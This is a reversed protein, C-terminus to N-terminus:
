LVYDEDLLFFSTPCLHVEKEIKPVMEEWLVCSYISQDLLTAHQPLSPTPGLGQSTNTIFFRVGARLQLHLTSRQNHLLVGCQSLLPCCLWGQLKYGLCDASVSLYVLSLLKAEADSANRRLGARRQKVVVFQSLLVGQTPKM